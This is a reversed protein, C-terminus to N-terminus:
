MTQKKKKEKMQGVIIVKVEVALGRAMFSIRVHARSRQM